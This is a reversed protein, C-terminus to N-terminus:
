YSEELLVTRFVNCLCTMVLILFLDVLSKYAKHKSGERFNERVQVDSARLSSFWGERSLENACVRANNCLNRLVELLIM